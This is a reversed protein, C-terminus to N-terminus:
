LHSESPWPPGVPHLWTRGQGPDQFAPAREPCRDPETERGSPQGGRGPCRFPCQTWLSVPYPMAQELGLRLVLSHPKGVGQLCVPGLVPAESDSVGPNLDQSLWKSPLSGRQAETHRHISHPSSVATDQTYQIGMCIPLLARCKLLSVCLRARRLGWNRGCAGRAGEGISPFIPSTTRFISVLNALETPPQSGGEDADLAPM